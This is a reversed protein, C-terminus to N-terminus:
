QVITRGEIGVAQVLQTLGAVPDHIDQCFACLHHPHSSQNRSLEYDACSGWLAAAQAVRKAMYM